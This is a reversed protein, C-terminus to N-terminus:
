AVRDAGPPHESLPVTNSGTVYFLPAELFASPSRAPPIHQDSSYTFSIAFHLMPTGKGHYRFVLYPGMRLRHGRCFAELAYPVYVKLAQFLNGRTLLWRKARSIDLDAALLQLRMDEFAASLEEAPDWRPGLTLFLVLGQEFRGQRELIREIARLRKGKGEHILGSHFDLNVISFPADPLADGNDDVGELILDAVDSCFYQCDPFGQDKVLIRMAELAEEDIDVCYASDIWDSWIAVDLMAEGPMGFYIRGGPPNGVYNEIFSLDHVGRLRDKPDTTEFTSM